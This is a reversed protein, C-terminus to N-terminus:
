IKQTPWDRRFMELVTRAIPAPDYFNNPKSM